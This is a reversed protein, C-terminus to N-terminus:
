YEGSGEAEVAAGLNVGSDRLRMTTQEDCGPIKEIEDLSNFGGREDRYDLITQAVEINLGTAAALEEATAYNIDLAM